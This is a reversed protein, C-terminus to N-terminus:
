YIIIWGGKDLIRITKLGFQATATYSKEYTKKKDARKVETYDNEDLM